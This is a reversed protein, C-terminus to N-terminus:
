INLWKQMPFYPAKEAGHRVKSAFNPSSRLIFNHVVVFCTFVAAPRECRLFRVGPETRLVAGIGGGAALTLEVVADLNEGSSSLGANRSTLFYMEGSNWASTM